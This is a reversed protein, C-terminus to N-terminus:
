QCRIIAPDICPILDKVDQPLPLDPVLPEPNVPQPPTPEPTPIPTPTNPIPDPIPSPKPSSQPNPNIPKDPAPIPSNNITEKIDNKKLSRLIDKKSKPNLDSTKVVAQILKNCQSRSLDSCLNNKEVKEVRDRTDNVIDRTTIANSFFFTALFIGATYGITKFRNDSIWQLVKM